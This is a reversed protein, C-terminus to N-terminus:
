SDQVGERKNEQADRARPQDTREDPHKLWANGNTDQPSSLSCTKIVKSIVGDM